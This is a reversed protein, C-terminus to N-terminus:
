SCVCVLHSGPIINLIIAKFQGLTFMDYYENPTKTCVGADCRVYVVVIAKPRPLPVFVQHRDLLMM